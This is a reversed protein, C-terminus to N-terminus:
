AMRFSCPAPPIVARVSCGLTWFPMGVPLPEPVTRHTSAPRQGKDESHRCPWSLEFLCLPTPHAYHPGGGGAM